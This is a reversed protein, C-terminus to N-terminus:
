KAMVGPADRGPQGGTKRTTVSNSMKNKTMNSKSADSKSMSDGNQAAPGTTSKTDVSQAMVASSFLLLAAAALIRRRMTDELFGARSWSVSWQERATWRSSGRVVLGKLAAKLTARFAFWLM